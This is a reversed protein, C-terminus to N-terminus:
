SEMLQLVGRKEVKMKMFGNVEMKEVGWVRM